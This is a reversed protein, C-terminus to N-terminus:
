FQQEIPQGYWCSYWGTLDTNLPLRHFFQEAKYVLLKVWRTCAKANEKGSWCSSFCVQGPTGPGECSSYNTEFNLYFMHFKPMSTMSYYDMAAVQVFEDFCCFINLHLVSFTARIPASAGNLWWRVHCCWHTQTDSSSCHIICCLPIHNMQINKKKMRFHFIPSCSYDREWVCVCCVRFSEAKGKLHLFFCKENGGVRSGAWPADRM